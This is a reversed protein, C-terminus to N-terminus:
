AGIGPVHSRPEAACRQRATALATPEGAAFRLATMLLHTAPLAAANTALNPQPLCLMTRAWRPLLGVAGQILVLHGATMLPSVDDGSIPRILFRMTELAQDGAELEPRVARFYAQMAVRTQPVWEAGLRKAITAMEHLYRDAGDGRLSFPTFRQHARLFSAVECTHVWTLLAPDDASYARGDPATGRVKRHVGKVSKVLREATATSGYTTGTVFSRTRGFRALPADRYGSHQDIGAMALPHLTQLMLASIGGVLMSPDAHVRWTASGPGFLGPDGPEEPLTHRELPLRDLGLSHALQERANNHLAGIASATAAALRHLPLTPISLASTPAVESDQTV